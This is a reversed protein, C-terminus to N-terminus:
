LVKANGTGTRPELRQLLRDALDVIFDCCDDRNKEYEENRDKDFAKCEMNGLFSALLQGALQIRLMQRMAAAQQTGLQSLAALQKYDPQM